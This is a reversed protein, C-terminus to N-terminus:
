RRGEESKRWQQWLEHAQEATEAVTIQTTDIHYPVAAYAPTRDALLQLLRTKRDQSDLMPRHQSTELRQWLEEPECDLCIVLNHATFAALNARDVLAGGGTAIVCRQQDALERCMAAELQRFHAEGDSEFIQRITRGQREELLADMDVFRFQLRRALERGVTTKGTGMFGTLIISNM